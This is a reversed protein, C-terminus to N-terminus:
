CNCTPPERCIFKVRPNESRKCQSYLLCGAMCLNKKNLMSSSSKSAEEEKKKGTLSGLKQKALTKLMDMTADARAVDLVAAVLVFGLLLVAASRM